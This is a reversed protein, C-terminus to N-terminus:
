ASGRSSRAAVISKLCCRDTGRSPVATECPSEIADCGPSLGGEGAGGGWDGPIEGTPTSWGVWLQIQVGRTPM